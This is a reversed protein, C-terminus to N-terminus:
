YLHLSFHTQMSATANCLWYWSMLLGEKCTRHCIFFSSLILGTPQPWHRWHKDYQRSPSLFTMRDEFLVHWKNEFCKFNSIHALTWRSPRGALYLHRGRNLTATQSVGVLLTGHLLALVRFKNFNAPTGWVLSVIDAVLPGFNVMNHPCTPSIDSSLLNKKRNDFRAKTAFIYSLSTTHHHM